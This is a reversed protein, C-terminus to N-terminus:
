GPGGAGFLNSLWAKDLGPPSISEQTLGSSLASTMKTKGKEKGVLVLEEVQSCRVVTESHTTIWIPSQWTARERMMQVLERIVTPHIGRELNEILTFGDKPINFLAVLLSLAYVTGDSVLHTPTHEKSGREKFLIATKGDPNQKETAIGELGPVIRKMWENIAKRNDSSELLHSLASALNHRKADLVSVTDSRVSEEVGLPNIRYLAISKMLDLLQPYPRWFDPLQVLYSPALNQDKSAGEGKRTILNKENVDIKENIVPLGDQEDITLVYRFRPMEEDYAKLTKEPLRCRIEFKFKGSSKAKRKTSRINEFGGHSLLAKHIGYNVFVNVFDLADFFNSKGTGNAGTFVSFARLDHLEVLDISKYNAIKLFDIIGSM